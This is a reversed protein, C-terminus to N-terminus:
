LLSAYLHHATRPTGNQNKGNKSKDWGCTQQIKNEQYCKEIQPLRFIQNNQAVALRKLFSKKAPMRCGCTPLIGVQSVEKLRLDADPRSAAAAPLFFFIPKTTVRHRAARAWLTARFRGASDFPV